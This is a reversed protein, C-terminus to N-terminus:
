SQVERAPLAPVTACKAIIAPIEYMGDDDALIACWPSRGGRIKGRNQVAVVDLAAYHEAMTVVDGDVRCLTAEHKHLRGREMDTLTAPDYWPASM